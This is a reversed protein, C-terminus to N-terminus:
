IFEVAFIRLDHQFSHGQVYFHCGVISSVCSLIQGNAIKVPAQAPVHALQPLQDAISAVLFSSSSGSDMLVVVPLNHFTDHFRITRHGNSGMRADHSIALCLQEASDEENDDSQEISLLEFVEQM